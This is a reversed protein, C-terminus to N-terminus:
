YPLIDVVSYVILVTKRLKVKDENKRENRKASLGIIDIGAYKVTFCMMVMLNM